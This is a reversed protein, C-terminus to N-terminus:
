YIADGAEMWAGKLSLIRKSGEKEKQRVDLRETRGGFNIEFGGM